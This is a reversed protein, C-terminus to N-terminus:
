AAQCRSRSVPASSSRSSSWQRVRSDPTGARSSGVLRGPRGDRAVATAAFQQADRGAQRVPQARQAPGLADGQEHAQQGRQLHQEAPVGVLAIDGDAGQCATPRAGFQVLHDAVEHVGDDQAGVQGAVRGPALQQAPDALDRPLRVRVLLQGELLQDRLQARLAVQAAVREELHQEGQVLLRPGPVEGLQVVALLQLSPEAGGAEVEGEVHRVVGGPGTVEADGDLVGGVQEVRVEDLAEAPVEQPHDLLHHGVGRGLQGLQLDDRGILQAGEGEAVPGLRQGLRGGQDAQPVALHPGGRVRDADHAVAPRQREGLGVRPGRGQGPLQPGSAHAGFAQDADAQFARHLQHDGQQAHQLRAAGVDREVGAVRSVPELVQQGVRAYAQDDRVRLM